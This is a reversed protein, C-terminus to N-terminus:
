SNDGRFLKSNERPKMRVFLLQPIHNVADASAAASPSIETLATSQHTHCASKGACRGAPLVSEGKTQEAFGPKSWDRCCQLLQKCTRLYGQWQPLRPYTSLTGKHIRVKAKSLHLLTHTEPANSTLENVLHSM